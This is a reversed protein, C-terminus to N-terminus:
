NYGRLRNYSNIQQDSLIQKQKLHADLHVFRLKGKLQAIENIKNKILKKNANNTRFISDLEKEKKIILLGIKKAEIQMSNFLTSTKEIQESTLNLQSSLDLVHRPGPYSNLEAAKAMGMGEGKLLQSLEENTLAKIDNNIESVYSSMHNNHNMKHKEQALILVGFLLVMAFSLVFQKLM